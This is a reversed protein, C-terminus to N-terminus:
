KEDDLLHRLPDGQRKPSDGSPRAEDKSQNKSQDKGRQGGPKEAEADANRKVTNSM